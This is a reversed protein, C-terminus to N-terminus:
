VPAGFIEAVDDDTIARDFEQGLRALETLVDERDHETKPTENVHGALTDLAVQWRWDDPAFMPGADAIRQLAARLRDVEDWAAFLNARHRDVILRLRENEAFVADIGSGDPFWYQDIEDTM